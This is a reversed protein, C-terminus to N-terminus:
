KVNKGFMEEYDHMRKDEAAQKDAASPAPAQKAASLRAAPIDAELWQFAYTKSKSAHIAAKVEEALPPETWKAMRKATALDKASFIPAGINVADIGRYTAWLAILPHLEDTKKPAPTTREGKVQPRLSPEIVSKGEPTVHPLTSDHVLPTDSSASPPNFQDYAWLLLWDERPRIYYSNSMNGRKADSRHQIDIFGQVELDNVVNICQRLKVRGKKAIFKLGPWCVREDNASDALALLVLLDTGMCPADAWVETMIAISM